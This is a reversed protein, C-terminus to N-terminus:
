NRTYVQEHGLTSLSTWVETSRWIHAERYRGERPAEPVLIIHVIMCHEVASIIIIPTSTPPSTSGRSLSGGQRGIGCCRKPFISAIDRNFSINHSNPDPPEIKARTDLWRGIGASGRDLISLTLFNLKDLEKRFM